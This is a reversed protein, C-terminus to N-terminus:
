WVHWSADEYVHDDCSSLFPIAALLAIIYKITKM